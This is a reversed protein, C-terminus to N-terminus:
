KIVRGIKGGTVLEVNHASSQWITDRGGAFTAREVFHTAGFKQANPGEYVPASPLSFQSFLFDPFGHLTEFDFHDCPSHYSRTTPCIKASFSRVLHGKNSFWRPFCM